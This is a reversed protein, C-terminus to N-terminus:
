DSRRLRPTSCLLLGTLSSAKLTAIDSRFITTARHVDDATFDINNMTNSKTLALVSASSPYCMNSVFAKVIKAQKVERVSFNKENEAVTVNINDYDNVEPIGYIDGIYCRFLGNCKSFVRSLLPPQMPFYLHTEGPIQFTFTTADGNERCNFRQAM